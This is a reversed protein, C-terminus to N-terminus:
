TTRGEQFFPYAALPKIIGGLSVRQFPQREQTPNSDACSGVVPGPKDLLVRGKQIRVYCITTALPM